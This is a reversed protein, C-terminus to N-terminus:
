PTRAWTGLATANGGTRTFTYTTGSIVNTWPGAGAFTVGTVNAVVNAGTFNAAPVVGTLQGSFLINESSRLASLIGDATADKAQTQMNIYQPIAVAALIGLIIIVIILEVLTFGRTDMKKLKMEFVGM